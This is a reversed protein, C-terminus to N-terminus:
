FNGTKLYFFKLLYEKFNKEVSYDIQMFFFWLKFIKKFSLFQKYCLAAHLILHYTNDDTLTM